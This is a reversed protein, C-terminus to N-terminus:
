RGATFRDGNKKISNLNKEIWNLVNSLIEFLYKFYVNKALYTFYVNLRVYLIEKNM